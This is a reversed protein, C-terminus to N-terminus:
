EEVRALPFTNPQHLDPESGSLPHYALVQNGAVLFANLATLHSPFLETPLLIENIMKGNKLVEHRVAFRVDAFDAVMQHPGDFGQVLYQGGICLKIELYEGSDEVFFVCVREFADLNEVRAGSPAEPLKYGPPSPTTTKVLIGVDNKQIEVLASIRSDPCKENNWLRGISLFLTKPEKPIILMNNPPASPTLFGRDDQALWEIPRM